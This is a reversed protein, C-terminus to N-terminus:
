NTKMASGYPSDVELGADAVKEWCVAGERCQKKFMLCNIGAIWM